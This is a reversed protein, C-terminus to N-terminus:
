GPLTRRHHLDVTFMVCQVGSSGGRDPHGESDRQVRREFAEALRGGCRTRISTLM